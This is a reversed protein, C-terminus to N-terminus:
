KAGLNEHYNDPTEFPGDVCPKVDQFQRPVNITVVNTMVSGTWPVGFRVWRDSLDTALEPSLEQQKLQLRLYLRKGRLDPDHRFMMKHNVPLTIEEFLPPVFDSHAPIVVFFDNKPDSPNDPSVKYPLEKMVKLSPELGEVGPLERFIDMVGPKLATYVTRDHEVPIILPRIGTNRYAVQIKLRLVLYSPPQREPTFRRTRAFCYEAAAIRAAGTLGARQSDPLTAGQLASFSLCAIAVFSITPSLKLTTM